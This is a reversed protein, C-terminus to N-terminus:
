GGVFHSEHEAEHIELRSLAHKIEASACSHKEGIDSFFYPCGPM